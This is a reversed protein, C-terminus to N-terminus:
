RWCSKLGPIDTLPYAMFRGRRRSEGTPALSIIALSHGTTVDKTEDTVFNNGEGDPIGMLETNVAAAPLVRKDPLPGCPQYLVPENNALARMRVALKSLSSIRKLTSFLMYLFSGGLRM